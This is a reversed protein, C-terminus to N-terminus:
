RIRNLYEDVERNKYTSKSIKGFSYRLSLTFARRDIIYASEADIQNITYNEELVMARFLDDVSLGIHLKENITKNISGGVIAYANREFIGEQRATLGWVFAGLTWDKPLRFQHNSYYYLYPKTGGIIAREDKVENISLLLLNTMTWFQHTIPSTLQINLGREQQFNQPSMIIRDAAEDYDVSFFVPNKREYYSFNLSQNRHQLNISWENTITPQLNANRTFELFPHIFTSISSANSYNPRRISKAYNFSLSSASDLTVNLTARPFLVTQKRDILLDIEERFGGQVTATESRLGFSYDLAQTQGSLQTYAAYNREEYDYNSLVEEAQDLFNFDLFADADAQYYNIGIEWKQGTEFTKEVDMRGAWVDITYKQYRLQSLEMGMKNYDNSISNELDRLYNSYQLGMFLNSKIPKWRKNYNLNSTFFHRNEYGDVFSAIRDTLAAQKLTSSTTIPAHTTHTRLNANVSLYDDEGFGYYAGGGIVFQPRPGTSVSAQELLVERTPIALLNRISEWTGIQNYAFNTKLELKNKKLAANITAYSNFKQRLAMVESVDMRIGDSFNLKRTVLIIARGEAEYRASPHNIVEISKISQVPIANLDDLSIRQYELYILPSGKGIISLSQRDGSLQVGPMMSLVDLTTPQNAFVSNDITVKLNGNKNVVTNRKAKVTVGNLLLAQSTLQLNLKQDANLQIRQYYDEYGLANVRLIYEEAALNTMSFYGDSIITQAVLASDAPHLLILDGYALLEGEEVTVEGTLQYQAQGQISFLCLSITLIFLKEM